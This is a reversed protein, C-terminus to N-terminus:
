CRDRRHNRRRDMEPEIKIEAIELTEEFRAWWNNQEPATEDAAAGEGKDKQLGRISVFEAMRAPLGSRKPQLLAIILFAIAAAVLLALLVMTITSDLIRTGIPPNYPRPSADDVPLAPTTYGTPRTKGVGNVNM